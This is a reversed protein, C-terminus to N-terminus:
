LGVLSISIWSDTASEFNHYKDKEKIDLFLMVNGPQLSRTPIAQNNAYGMRYTAGQDTVDFVIMFQYFSGGQKVRM